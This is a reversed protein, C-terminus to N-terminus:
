ISETRMDTSSFLEICKDTIIDAAEPQALKKMNDSMIKLKDGNDLLAKITDSLVKGSLRSEQILLTGGGRTYYYGNIEQHNDTAFPYPILIAPLGMVSIEALTTAGARTVVLDAQRYCKSMNSFFASVDASIDLDQYGSKIKEFDNSGTQHIIHIKENYRDKLDKAAMLMFENLQHAGQSGGLVLICKKDNQKHRKEASAALIEDRVPNGTQITKKEPFAYKCPLSLFVAKVIKGALKNALGPVSNQEHICTPIRKLWAALIVPGTVYGGVGLVLKPRFNQLIRLAKFVALPLKLLGIIKDMINVGKLGACDISKLEFNYDTLARQDILRQTGIFMIRCGPIRKKFRSAVAIGPFLHGGTGGGTIIIRM